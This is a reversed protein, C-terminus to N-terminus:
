MKIHEEMLHRSSNNSGLVERIDFLYKEEMVARQLIIILRAKTSDSKAKRFEGDENIRNSAKELVQLVM